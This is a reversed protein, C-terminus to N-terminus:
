ELLAHNNFELSVMNAFERGKRILQEVQDHSAHGGRHVISDRIAKLTDLSNKHPIVDGRNIVGRSQMEEQLRQMAPRFGITETKNTFFSAGYSDICAYMLMELGQFCAVASLKISAESGEHLLQQSRDMFSKATQEFTSLNSQVFKSELLSVVFASLTPWNYPSEPVEWNGLPTQAGLLYELGSEYTTTLNPQSSLRIADLAVLSTFLDSSKGSDDEYEMAYWGGDSRQHSALWKVGQNARDILEGRNSVRYIVCCMCATAFASEIYDYTTDSFIENKWAGSTSNKLGYRDVGVEFAHNLKSSLGPYRSLFWLDDPYYGEPELESIIEDQLWELEGWDFHDIVNYVVANDLNHTYNKSRWFRRSVHGAKYATTNELRQQRDYETAQHRWDTLTRTIVEKEVEEAVVVLAEYDQMAEFEYGNCYAKLLTRAKDIGSPIRAAAAMIADDVEGLRKDLTSTPERGAEYSDLRHRIARSVAKRAQPPLTELQPQLRNLIGERSKWADDLVAESFESFGLSIVTRFRHWIEREAFWIEMLREQSLDEPILRKAM